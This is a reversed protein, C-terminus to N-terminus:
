VGGEKGTELLCQFHDHVQEQQYVMIVHYPFFIDICYWVVPRCNAYIM